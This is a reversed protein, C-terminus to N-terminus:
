AKCGFQHSGIAYIMKKKKHGKLTSPNTRPNAVMIPLYLDSSLGSISLLRTCHLM